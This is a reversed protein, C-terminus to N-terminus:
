KNRMKKKQIAHCTKCIKYGKSTIKGSVSYDHGSPCHTKMGKPRNKKNFGGNQTRYEQMESLAKEAQLLKKGTLYPLLDKIVREAEIGTKRYQFAQDTYKNTHPGNVTGTGVYEAFRDLPTRDYYQTIGIDLAKVKSRRVGVYGEGQFFGACWMLKADMFINYWLEYENYSSSM